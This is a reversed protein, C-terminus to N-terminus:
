KVRKKKSNNSAQDKNSNEGRAPVRDDREM